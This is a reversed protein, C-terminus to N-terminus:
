WILNYGSFDSFFSGFGAIGPEGSKIGAIPSPDSFTNISTLNLINAEM